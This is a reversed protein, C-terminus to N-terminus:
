HIFLFVHSSHMFPAFLSSLPSSGALHIKCSDYLTTSKFFFFTVKNAPSCFDMSGPAQFSPLFPLNEPWSKVSPCALGWDGPGMRGGALGFVVNEGELFSNIQLGKLALAPPALIGVVEQHSGLLFPSCLGECNGFIWMNEGDVCCAGLCVHEAEM